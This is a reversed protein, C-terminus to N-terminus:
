LYSIQFNVQSNFEGIDITGTADGKVWASFDVEQNPLGKAPTNGDMQPKTESATGLKLAAGKSTGIVISAGNMEGSAGMLALNGPNATSENGAASFVTSMKTETTFVCHELRIKFPVATSTKGGTLSGTGIHGLNVTQHEDGVVISCPSDEITGIFNVTGTNSGVANAYSSFGMVMATALAAKVLKKM